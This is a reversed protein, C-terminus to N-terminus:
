VGRGSGSSALQIGLWLCGMGVVNQFLINGLCALLRREGLLAVGDFAFASFTTFAGFFGALVAVAMPQSLREGFAGWCVGFGFCGVVNVLAIPWASDPLIGRLMLTLVYRASAGLAGAVAVAAVMQAQM